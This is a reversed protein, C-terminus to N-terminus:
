TGKELATVAKAYTEDNIVGREHYKDLLERQEAVARASPYRALPSLAYCTATFVTSATGGALAAVLLVWLNARGGTRFIVLGAVLAGLLLAGGFFRPLYHGWWATDHGAAWAKGDTSYIYIGDDVRVSWRGWTDADAPSGQFKQPDAGTRNEYGYPIRWPSLVGAPSIVFVRGIPSFAIDITFASAAGGDGPSPLYVHPLARGFEEANSPFRCGPRPRDEPGSGGRSGLWTEWTAWTMLRSLEVDRKDKESHLTLPFRTAFTDLVALGENNSPYAGHSEKYAQLLTKIEALQNQVLNLDAQYGSVNRDDTSYGAALFAGVAGV